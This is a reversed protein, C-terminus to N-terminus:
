ETIKDNTIAVPYKTAIRKFQQEVNTKNLSTLEEQAMQQLFAFREIREVGRKIMEANVVELNSLVILQNITATDRLNLGKSALEPNHEEWDKARCGFLALNLMDAESAYVLYEKKKEISLQPIINDKIADTHLQYNTKSLIRSIDWQLLLPNNEAEVLRQFEKVVLLNFEPSLWMGFHYAIDKHAYTGGYRGAKAFIGIAGTREIFKNVSMYFRNSGAEMRIGGFEPTKFNPNNLQEWVGMFDITSKNNLWKEILRAGDEFNKTMDTLCIYDYQDKNLLVNIRTDNVQITRAKAM